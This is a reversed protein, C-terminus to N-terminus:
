RAQIRVGNKGNAWVRYFRADTVDDGLVTLPQPKVERLAKLMERIFASDAKRPNTPTGGRRYWRM